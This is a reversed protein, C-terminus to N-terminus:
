ILERVQHFLVDYTFHLGQLNKETTGFPGVDHDGSAVGGLAQSLNSIHNCVHSGYPVM